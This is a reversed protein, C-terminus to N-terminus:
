RYAHFSVKVGLKVLELVTDSLNSRLIETHTQEELEEKETYLQFCKGPRM